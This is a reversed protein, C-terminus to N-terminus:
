GKEPIYNEKCYKEFETDVQFFPDCFEELEKETSKYYRDQATILKEIQEIFGNFDANMRCLKDITKYDLDNYRAPFLIRSRFPNSHLEIIGIGFSQNLREIEDRLSDGFEYAVLYGYNAWSSNSVAQFYAKKLESDSSIERKLEYSSLKFLEVSSVSKLLNQSTKSKMKLFKVGVMDPHTWMQNSDVSNKSQEHFVTKSFTEGNKLYSSLLGHLSRETYNKKETGTFSAEKLKKEMALHLREIEISQEIAQIETDLDEEFKALYYHYAGDKKIRKVRTDGQRIFEGLLASITADPTKAKGFDRYNNKLIHQYVDAYTCLGQIDNLSKLIAEKITM